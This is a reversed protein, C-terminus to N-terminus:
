KKQEQGMQEVLTYQDVNQEYLFVEVELPSPEENFRKRFVHNFFMLMGIGIGISYPVQIIYPHEIKEGTILEYIRQHVEQMSVDVHFNMIALGSGIFLTFWVFLVLLFNPKKRKDYIHVLTQDHGVSQIDFLPDLNRLVHMVHILDIVIRNGDEPRPVYVLLNRLEDQNYKHSDLIFDGVQHLYIRQGPASYVKPRLKLYIRPVEQEM